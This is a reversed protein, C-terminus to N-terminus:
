CYIYFLHHGLPPLMYYVNVHLVGVCFTTNSSFLVTSVTSPIESTLLKSTMYCMYYALVQKGFEICEM